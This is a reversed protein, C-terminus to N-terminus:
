SKTTVEIRSNLIATIVDISIIDAEPILTPGGVQRVDQMCIEDDRVYLFELIVWKGDAFKVLVDDGPNPKTSKSGEIIIFEGSKYRPRLKSGKIQLAFCDTASTYHRLYRQADKSQQEIVEIVGEDDPTVNGLVKINLQILQRATDDLEESLNHADKLLGSLSGMPQDLWGVPVRVKEEILRAAREGISRGGNYSESLYQSIQARSYGFKEAFVAINGISHEDVLSRLRARRTAFIDTVVPEM